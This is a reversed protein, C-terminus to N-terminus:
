AMVGFTIAMGLAMLAQRATGHPHHAPQASGRQRTGFFHWVWVVAAFAFGATWIWNLASVWGPHGSEGSSMDMGPMTPRPAAFMWAMACMMLAHYGNLVRHGAGAGTTAIVVFWVAALLFFVMPATSPLAGGQWVMVVMAVAMVVHLVNGVVTGVLNGVAVKCGPRGTALAFVSGAAALGFLVTVVWRLASDDIM